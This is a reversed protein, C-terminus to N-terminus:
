SVIKMDSDCCYSDGEYKSPYFWGGLEFFMPIFKIKGCILCLHKVSDVEEHINLGMTHRDLQGKIYSDM